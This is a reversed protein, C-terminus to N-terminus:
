YAIPKIKDYLQRTNMGGSSAIEELSAANWNVGVALLSEMKAIADRKLTSGERGIHCGTALHTICWSKGMKHLILGNRIEGTVEWPKGMYGPMTVTQKM